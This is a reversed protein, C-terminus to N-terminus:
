KMTTEYTIGPFSVNEALLATHADPDGKLVDLLFATTFHNILDHARNMDWVPDSCFWFAGGNVYWPVTACDNAFIMHDGDEFVVRSKSMSGLHDYAYPQYLEFDSFVLHDKSGYMLLTPVTITTASDSGFFPTWPALPVIADIRPDAWSPWLEEPVSKLGALEAVQEAYNCLYDQITGSGIEAPLQLNAYQLCWSTPGTLDLLAGGAVLTTYGGYSHGVVAIHEIDIMGRLQSNEDANLQEAYDIQWSVDRPRTFMSLAPNVTSGTEHNDAYDIAMVIFGQSALHECLYANSLLSGGLGHVFVVLPYPGDEFDAEARLIAHGGVPLTSGWGNVTYTITEQKSDPNKTPYWVMIRTTHFDTKAYMEMTGVWYPGHLAYKPADPRLGVPEPKTDQALVPAVTLAFIVLAALALLILRKASM